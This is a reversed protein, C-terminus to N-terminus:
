AHQCTAIMVGVRHGADVLSRGAIGAAIARYWELVAKQGFHEQLLALAGIADAFPVQRGGLLDAGIAPVVMAQDGRRTEMAQLSGFDVTVLETSKDESDM